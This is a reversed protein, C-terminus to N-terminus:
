AAYNGIAQDKAHILLLRIANPILNPTIFEPLKARNVDTQEPVRRSGEM